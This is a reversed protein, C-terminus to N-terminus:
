FKLFEEYLLHLDIEPGQYKFCVGLFCRKGYSVYKSKNAEIKTLHINM